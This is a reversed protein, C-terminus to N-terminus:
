IFALFPVLHGAPPSCMCCPCTPLHTIRTRLPVPCSLAPCLQVARDSKKMSNLIICSQFGTFKKNLKGYLMKPSHSKAPLPFQAFDFQPYPPPPLTVASLSSIFLYTDIFRSEPEGCSVGFRGAGPDRAEWGEPSHPVLRHQKCAM